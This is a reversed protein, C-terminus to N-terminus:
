EELSEKIARRIQERPVDRTLTVEGIRTPLVFRIAGSEAKKDTEMLSMLMGPDTAPIATPLGYREILHLIRQVADPRLLDMNCALRAAAVMGIAVAEGHTFRQYATHTEVAHGFTHGYNLIARLGTETEDSAVVQAKIQCSRRILHKMAEPELRLVADAQDELFGFLDADAIVGYKIIEALGTRVERAPLTALCRPDIFVAMPQLFAGIMNKGHEHNVGVKGGVSSDVQALLSTPAQVFRVGRQYTAAVFGALDGIVGGGLAIIVAKRDVRRQILDGYLRTATQLTKYREGAPVLLTHHTLEVADLSHRLADGYRRDVERNAIIVAASVGPKRALFAGLRAHCGEDILVDYSRRGLDVRVKGLWALIDDTVRTPTRTTTDIQVDAHAYTPQRMELLERIRTQPDDIDLLPRRGAEVAVRAAIAEPAAALCVLPGARKVRAVNEQTGLAGGGLAVVASPRGLVEALVRTELARFGSEGDEAFVQPIPKGAAAEIELDADIFPLGLRAALLRGVTTKGTGMFGALIVHAM